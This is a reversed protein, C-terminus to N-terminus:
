RREAHDRDILRDAPIRWTRLLAYPADPRFQVDTVRRHVVAVSQQSYLWIAPADDILQQFVARWARLTAAPGGPGGRPGGSVARTYADAFAPSDYHGFDAAGGALWVLALSSSPSPDAGRSVLAADFNGGQLRQAFANPELETIEAEVGIRRFQEQLLRAYQRRAISTTPTLIEFALKQGERDLIGDGDHDRWGDAALRRRAAASDFPLVRLTSDWTPWMLPMPGPPVKAFGAFVSQVMQQRDTALTLARRVERDAFLPHPQATDGRARLNFALYSYFPSIYPYTTLQPAARVRELDQPGLYEYADAEGAILQTVAVTQDPTARWILHRIHPRGLFCTSDAELELSEGQKWSVFRYCGAGVPARGFAATRLQDRPVTRLLHSPLIRMHYVADYFMEPYPESFHFVVTLSDRATVTRIRKLPARAGSGVVSDTNVDFTFTVDEARVPRGDHWRARPNLHFAITRPDDWEWREALQPVFGADGITSGSPVLDALKVFVQDFVANARVDDSAPPLLIDPQGTSALVLTGCYEGTCGVRRACAALSLTAIAICLSRTRMGPLM